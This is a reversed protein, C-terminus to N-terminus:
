KKLADILKNGFQRTTWEQDYQFGIGEAIERLAGKTNDYIKFTKIGGDDKVNIYYEGIEASKGDGFETCLKKGFQRTNWNPDYEIKKLEAVERLSAKVNEFNRYVQISGSDEVSIVYEGIIATKKGM